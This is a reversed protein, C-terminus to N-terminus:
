NPGSDTTTSTATTPTTIEKTKTRTFQFYSIGIITIFGHVSMILAFTSPTLWRSQEDEAYLYLFGSSGFLFGFSKGMTKSAISMPYEEKKFINAYWTQCALAWFSLTLVVIFLLTSLM